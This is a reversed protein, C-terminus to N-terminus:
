LFSKTWLEREGVRCDRTWSHVFCVETRRTKVCPSTSYPHLGQGQRGRGEEDSSWCLEVGRGSGASQDLACPHFLPVDQPLPCEQLSDTQQCLEHTTHQSISCPTSRQWTLTQLPQNPSRLNYLKTSTHPPTHAALHTQTHQSLPFHTQTVYMINTLTMFKDNNRECSGLTWHNSYTGGPKVNVFEVNHGCLTNIHKTHIQYCVATIERYLM